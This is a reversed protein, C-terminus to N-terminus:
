PSNSSERAKGVIKGGVVWILAMILGGAVVEGGVEAVGRVGSMDPWQQGANTKKAVLAEGEEGTPQCDIYIGEGPDGAGRSSGTKNIFLRGNSPKIPYEPDTVHKRLIEATSSTISVSNEIDFVVFNALGGCTPPSFPLSGSYSYFPKTPVVSNLTFGTVNVPVGGGAGSFGETPLTVATEVMADLDSTPGGVSGGDQVPVSVILPASDTVGRHFIMLEAAARKGGYEHLSPAYMRIGTVEYWSNNYNVPSHTSQQSDNKGVEYELYEGRNYASLKTQPYNYSYHCKLDCSGVNSVINVPASAKSCVPM